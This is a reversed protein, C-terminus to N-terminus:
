INFVEKALGLFRNSFALGLGMLAISSVVLLVGMRSKNNKAALIGSIVGIMGFVFPYLFLSLVASLWGMLLVLVRKVSEFHGSIRQVNDM